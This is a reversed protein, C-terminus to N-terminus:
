SVLEAPEYTDAGVDTDRWSLWVDQDREAIDDSDSANQVFVLLESGDSHRVAYQTSTGLYVVEIVRGRIACRGADPRALTLM